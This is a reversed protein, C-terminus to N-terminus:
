ERALVPTLDSTPGTYPQARRYLSARHELRAIADKIVPLDKVRSERCSALARDNAQLAESYRGNAALAVAHADHVMALFVGVPQTREVDDLALRPDRLETKPSASRMWALAIFAETSQGSAQQYSAFAGALDGLREQMKGLNLLAQPNGRQLALAKRYQEAAEQYKGQRAYFHGLGLPVFPEDARLRAAEAFAALAEDSRGMVSLQNAYECLPRVNKPGVWRTKAAVDVAKRLIELAEDDRGLRFLENGLNEWM